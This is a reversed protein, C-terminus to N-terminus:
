ASRLAPCLQVRAGAFADLVWARVAPTDILVPADVHAPPALDYSMLPVPRNDPYFGAAKAADTSVLAEVKSAEIPMPERDGITTCPQRTTTADGPMVPGIVLLADDDIRLRLHVFAQRVPEAPLLGETFAYVDPADAWRWGRLPWGGCGAPPYSLAIPGFCATAAGGRGLVLGDWVWESARGRQSATTTPAVEVTTTRDGACATSLTKGPNDEVKDM